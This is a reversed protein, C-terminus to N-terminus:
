FYVFCICPFYFIYIYPGDVPEEQAVAADQGQQVLLRVDVPARHRLENRPHHLVTGPRIGLQGALADLDRLPRFTARITALNICVTVVRKMRGLSSPVHGRWEGGLIANEKVKNNAHEVNARIFQLADNWANDAETRPRARSNKIPVILDTGQYGSDALWNEHAALPPHHMQFLRIDHISGPHPGTFWIPRGRLDAAM